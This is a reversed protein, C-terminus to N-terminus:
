ESFIDSNNKLKQHNAKNKCVSNSMTNPVRVISGYKYQKHYIEGCLSIKINNKDGSSAINDYNKKRKHYIQECLSIKVNCKAINGNGCQKAVGPLILM